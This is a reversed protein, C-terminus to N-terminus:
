EDSFLVSKKEKERKQLGRERQCDVVGFVMGEVTVTLVFGREWVVMMLEITMTM